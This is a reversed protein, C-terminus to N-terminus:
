PPPRRGGYAAVWGPTSLVRGDRVVCRLRGRKAAKILAPYGNGALERLPRLPEEGGAAVLRNCAAALAEGLLRELLGPEGTLAARLARRYPAARVRPIALPPVDLRQLLLAAALRGTRGNADTFPRLRAFRALFAALWSPLGEPAPRLRVREMLGATEFPITWPPPSVVGTEGVAVALRWAGPRVSPNSAGVLTHIRRVDDLTLLPRPDDPRLPRQDYVWAAAAALDRAALYADLPHTGLAVGRDLLAALESPTLPTETIALSGDLAERRLRQVERAIAARPPLRHVEALLPAIDM